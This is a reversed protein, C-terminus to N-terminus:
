RAGFMDELRMALVVDGEVSCHGAVMVTLANEVGAIVRVWDALGIHITVAADLPAPEILRAQGARSDVQIAWRWPAEPPPAIAFPELEYAITGSFGGARSPQFGRALAKLLRRQRRPDAFRNELDMDDLGGVMAALAHRGGRSALARIPRSRKAAPTKAMPERGEIEARAEAAARLAWDVGYREALSEAEALVEAAENAHGHRHLAVALDARALGAAGVIEYADAREVATRLEPVAVGPRDALLELRGIHWEPLQGFGLAPAPSIVYPRLPEFLPRLRAGAERDGVLTATLALAWLATPMHGDPRRLSELDDTLLARMRRRATELDGEMAAAFAVFASILGRPLVREMAEYVSRSMAVEGDFFWETTLLGLTAIAIHIDPRLRRVVTGARQVLAVGGERDGRDLLRMGRNLDVEWTFRPSGLRQAIEGMEEVARDCDAMRGLVYYGFASLQVTRFLLDERDCEEALRLFPIFAEFHDFALLPDPSRSFLGILRTSHALTAAEPDGLRRGLQEAREVLAAREEDEDSFVLLYVLRFTIRLALRPESDGLGELGRRLLELSAPDDTGVEWGFGIDGGAFGLAARALTVVDDTARAAEVAARFSLRARALDACLLEQEGLELLAAAREALASEPLLSLASRIHSVAQEHDHAEAAAAASARYAAIAPEPGALEVSLGFHRALEAPEADAEEELAQAISLHLRARAADGTGAILAERVLAHPFAITPEVAAVDDVLRESLAEQVAREAEDEGLGAAKAALGVPAAPGIAAVAALFRETDADLRGLREEVLDTVAEPVPAAELADEEGLVGRGELDRALEGAFFPNGSTRRQLRAALGPTIARELKAAVLAAMGTVDLGDLRLESLDGTRRLDSLVKSVPHRRGMEQDRATVVLVLQAPASELLHGLAQASAPDCWHADDLVVHLPAGDAAFALASCIGRFLRYRGGEAAVVEDAVARDGFTAYEGLEPVLAALEAGAAEALATRWADDGALALEGIARVWPEFAVVAEPPCRALVIVVGEAHAEAAAAAAHRTKGIGPEGLILVARRGPRPATKECLTAIEPDRGILPEEAYAALIPPLRVHAPSDDDDRGPVDAGDGEASAVGDDEHSPALERWRLRSARVPAPVGKLEYDRNEELAVGDRSAVLAQVLDQVLVEGTGATSSLRSAIVVSMGHLDEGDPIPEGAAVGVRAALGIGGQEADLREVSAQIAAAARLAGLASEFSSMVGDGLTKVVRGNGREVADTVDKVHARRVSDMRDDGLTALLATSDVLDSFVVIAVGAM